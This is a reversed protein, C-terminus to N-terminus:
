ARNCCHLLSKLWNLNSLTTISLFSGRNWPGGRVATDWLSVHWGCSLPQICHLTTYYPHHGRHEVISAHQPWTNCGVVWTSRTEPWTRGAAAAAASDSWLRGGIDLQKVIVQRSDTVSLSRHLRASAAVRDVADGAPCVPIHVTLRQMVKMADWLSARDSASISTSM